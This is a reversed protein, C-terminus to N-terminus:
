LAPGRAEVSLQNTNVARTFALIAEDRGAADLRMLIGRFTEADDDTWRGAARAADLLAQGEARVAQKEPTVVAATAATAAPGAAPPAAERAAGLEDHVAARVAAVLAATDLVADGRTVPCNVAAVVPPRTADGRGSASGARHGWWVGAAVSLRVAVALGLIRPM